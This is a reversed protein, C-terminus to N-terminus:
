QSPSLHPVPRVCRLFPRPNDFSCKPDNRQHNEPQDNEGGAASKQDLSTPKRITEGRPFGMVVAVFLVNDIHTEVAIKTMSGNALRGISVSLVSWGHLGAEGTMVVFPLKLRLLTLNAMNNRLRLNGRDQRRENERVFLVQVNRPHLFRAINTMATIDGTGPLLIPVKGSHLDAQIAVVMLLLVLVKLAQVTMRIKMRHTQFRDGTEVVLPVEQAVVFMVSPGLCFNASLTMSLIVTHLTM